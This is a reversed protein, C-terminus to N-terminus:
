SKPEDPKASSPPADPSPEGPQSAVDIEAKAPPPPADPPSPKSKRREIHSASVWAALTAPDNRYKNHVVANVQKVLKIGKAIILGLSATSTIRDERSHNRETIVQEMDAIAARLDDLFDPPMEHRIFEAALPTADTLFARAANLVEQDSANRPIRFKNELGPDDLAMARATLTIAEMEDLLTDRALGKSETAQRSSGVSSTQTSAFQEIEIVTAAIGTFLTHGLSNPPFDAARAASFDRVRRLMDSHSFEHHNM